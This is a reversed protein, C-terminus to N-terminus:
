NNGAAGTDAPKTSGTTTTDTAAPQPAQATPSMDRAGPGFIYFAVAGLVLVIAAILVINAASLGSRDEIVVNPRDLDMPEPPEAADAPPIPNFPDQPPRPAEYDPRRAPEAM